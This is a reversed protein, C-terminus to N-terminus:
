WRVHVDRVPIETATHVLMWHTPDKESAELHHGPITVEQNASITEPLAELTTIPNTM